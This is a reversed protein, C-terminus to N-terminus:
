KTFHVGLGVAVAIAAATVVSWTFFYPPCYPVNQIIKMIMLSTEDYPPYRCLLCFNM